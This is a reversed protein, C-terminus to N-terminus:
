NSEQNINKLSKVKKRIRQFFPTTTIEAVQRAKKVEDIQISLKEKISIQSAKLAEAKEFLEPEITIEHQQSYQRKLTDILDLLADNQTLLKVLDETVIQLREALTKAIPLCLKFGTSEDRALIEVFAERNLVFIRCPTLSRVSSTRPINLLLGMEGIVSGKGIKAICHPQHKLDGKLVEAEGDLIVILSNSEEGETLLMTNPLIELVQGAKVVSVLEVDSFNQLLKTESLKKYLKEILLEV